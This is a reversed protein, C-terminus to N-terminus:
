GTQQLKPYYDELARNLQEMGTLVFKVQRRLITRLADHCSDTLPGDAVVIVETESMRVPIVRLERADKGSMLAAAQADIGLEELNVRELDDTLQGCWASWLHEPQCLGWSLAIEGFRRRTTKQDELIEDVDQRSLPVSRRLIEGIRPRHAM